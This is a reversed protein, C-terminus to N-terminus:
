LIQNFFIIGILYKVNFVICIVFLSGANIFSKKSSNHTYKTKHEV